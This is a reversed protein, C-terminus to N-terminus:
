MGENREAPPRIAGSLLDQLFAAPDPLTAFHRYVKVGFGSPDLQYYVWSMEGLHAYGPRPYRRLIRERLEATMTSLQATYAIYEHVVRSELRAPLNQEVIAHTVEHAVVSEYLAPTMPMGFLPDDATLHHAQAYSLLDIRDADADYLGIHSPGREIPRDHLQMRIRRRVRIGHARLFGRASAAGRCLLEHDHDTATGRDVSIAPCDTLRGDATADGVAPAGAVLGTVWLLVLWGRM